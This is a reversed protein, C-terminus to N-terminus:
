VWKGNEQVLEGDLYIQGGNRLDKLMDWHIASKNTGGTFGYANGLALHVTGGMKEDFLLNDMFRTVGTNCGIGLEGLRRAGEDADLMQLLFDEGSTATAEVVEGGRFVLRVSEARGITHYPAPFESFHVVGEVSDELPSLFFEGGPLNIKGDEVTCERGAIGLTVDTGEGVIRVEEAADFREAWQQMQAALADWDILCADYVFDEFQELTLGSAQAASNTPYQCITWPVELARHRRGLPEFSRAIRTRRAPDVDSGARANEASLIVLTADDHEAEYAVLAPPPADLVEEPVERIWNGTFASQETPWSIRPLAYAGRRAILGTVEEV